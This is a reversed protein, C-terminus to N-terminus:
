PENLSLNGPKFRIGLTYCPKLPGKGTRRIITTVPSPGFASNASNLCAPTWNAGLFDAETTNNSM